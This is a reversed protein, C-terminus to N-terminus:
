ATECLAIVECLKDDANAWKAEKLQNFNDSDIVPSFQCKSKLLFTHKNGSIYCNRVVELAWAEAFPYEARNTWVLVLTLSLDM